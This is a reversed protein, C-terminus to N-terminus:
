GWLCRRVECSSACSLSTLERVRLEPILHVPFDSQYHVDPRIYAVAAYEEPHTVYHAEWAKGVEQVSKLQCALNRVTEAQKEEPLYM